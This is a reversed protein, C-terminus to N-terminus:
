NNKSNWSRGGGVRKFSVVRFASGALEPEEAARYAAIAATIVAVLQDTGDDPEIVYTPATHESAPVSVHIESENDKVMKKKVTPKESFVLKFVSLVCWLIGLVAFVAGMGLLLMQGVYSFAEASFPVYTGDSRVSMAIDSVFIGFKM